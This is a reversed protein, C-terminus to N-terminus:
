GKSARWELDLGNSFFKETASSTVLAAPGTSAEAEDLEASFERVFTTNWRNEGDDMNLIFVEGQRDLKIM